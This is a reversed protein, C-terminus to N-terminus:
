FEGPRSGALEPSRLAKEMSCHGSLKWPFHMTSVAGWHWRRGIGTNVCSGAGGSVQAEM